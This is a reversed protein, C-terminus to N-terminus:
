ERESVLEKASEIVVYLANLEALVHGTVAGTGESAVAVQCAGLKQIKDTDYHLEVADTSFGSSVFDVHVYGLPKGDMFFWLLDGAQPEESNALSEQPFPVYADGGVDWKYYYFWSRTDGGTAPAPDDSKMSYVYTNM